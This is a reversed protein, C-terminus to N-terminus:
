KKKIKAHLKMHESKTLIMLNEPRNDKKDLNIHHVEYDPSLYKIGDITVSFKEELLFQEAIYRHERIWEDDFSFPHNKVRILTYGHTNTRIKKSMPNKMNRNGFNPNKEGLYVVRRLEGSCKMSCTLPFKAKKIERPKKYTREGCIFCNIYNPNNAKRHLAECEKSCFFRNRSNFRSPSVEIKEDCM